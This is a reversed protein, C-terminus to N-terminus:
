PLQSAAWWDVGPTGVQASAPRPAVLVLASMVMAWVIAITLARTPLPWTLIAAGRRASKENKTTGSSPQNLM